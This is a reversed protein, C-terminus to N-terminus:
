QLLPMGITVARLAEILRSTDPRPRVAIRFHNSTSGIKNGCERIYCGHETLLRNRFTVGDVNYPAKVYVFNAFSPYSRLEPITALGEVLFERDALVQRRSAEYAGMHPGVARLLSEGLANFNWKPLAHRLKGILAPNGVAYGM